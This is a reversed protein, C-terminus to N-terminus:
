CKTHTQSLAKQRWSNDERGEVGGICGGERGGEREVNRETKEREEREVKPFNAVKLKVM